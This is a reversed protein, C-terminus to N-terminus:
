YFGSACRPPLPSTASRNFAGTKFVPPGERPEHTRIEGEGGIAVPSRDALAASTGLASANQLLMRPHLTARVAFYRRMGVLLASIEVM